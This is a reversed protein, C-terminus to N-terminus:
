LLDFMHSCRRSSKLVVHTDRKLVFVLSILNQLGVFSKTNLIDNKKESNLHIILFQYSFCKFVQACNLACGNSNLKPVIVEYFGGTVDLCRSSTTNKNTLISHNLGVTLISILHKTPKKRICFRWNMMHYYQINVYFFVNGVLFYVVKIFIM